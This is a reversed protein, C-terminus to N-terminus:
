LLDGFYAAVLDKAYRHFLSDSGMNTIKYGNGFLVLVADFAGAVVYVHVTFADFKFSYIKIYGNDHISKYEKPYMISLDSPDATESVMATLGEIFATMNHAAAFDASYDPKDRM